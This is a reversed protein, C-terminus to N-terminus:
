IGLFLEWTSDSKMRRIEQITWARSSLCKNDLFLQYSDYHERKRKGDARFIHKLTKEKGIYGLKWRDKQIYWRGVALKVAKKIRTKWKRIIQREVTVELPKEKIIKYFFQPYPKWGSYAASKESQYYMKGRFIYALPVKPEKVSVDLPLTEMTQYPLGPFPETYEITAEIERQIFFSDTDCYRIPDSPTHYQHFIKSLDKHSYALLTDSAPPNTTDGPYPNARRIYGSTSNLTNKICFKHILSEYQKKLKKLYLDEFKKMLPKLSSDFEPTLVTEVNLIEANAAELNFLHYLKGSLTGTVYVNNDGFKIPLGWLDDETKFTGLVWGYPMGTIKYFKEWSAKGILSTADGDWVKVNKILLCQTATMARPYQSDQDNYALNPIAGTYFAENRGAPSNELIDKFWHNPFTIKFKNKGYRVIKNIKPLDFYHKAVTGWSYLKTIPVKGGLWKDIINEHIWQAAKAAIYADRIGYKAFYPWEEETPLRKGFDKGLPTPLKYIDQKYYDSLYDGLAKLTTLYNNGYRLQHFFIRIDFVPVRMYKSPNIYFLNIPEDAWDQWPYRGKEDQIQLLEWAALSGYEFPLTFAYLIKPKVTRLWNIFETKTKFAKGEKEGTNPCVQISHIASEDLNVGESKGETDMGWFKKPRGRVNKKM